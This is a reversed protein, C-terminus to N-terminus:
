DLPHDLSLCHKPCVDVCLGCELCRRDNVEWRKENRVVTIANQPCKRACLGCFICREDKGLRVAPRDKKELRFPLDFIDEGIAESIANIIAPACPVVACEAISKAGYPGTPEGEEIFDTQLRPMDFSHPMRYSHFSSNKLRGRHDYEIAEQLAYGMGMQIAGELQGEIAMRNIVRGVDHVAVYDLVDVKGTDMHVCVRAAHAGYSGPVHHSAYTAVGIVEQKAVSQVYNMVETLTASKGSPSKICFDEPYLDEANEDLMAAAYKCLQQAANEAAMKAAYCSVYVGRSSFDGLNWGCTDTDACVCDIKEMPIGLVESIVQMESTVTSTGMDHTSTHLICSGDDNMKVIMCSQDVQAGFAASGHVGLAWGVGIRCNPDTQAPLDPWNKTLALMRNVCDIPRPNGIPHMDTQDVGDPEVLNKLQLQTYDLGTAKAIRHLHCQMPFYVQPSGYGRMAGAVPTNTYVPTGIFRLNPTKYAKFVKASMAGIVNMASSAYAGTNTIVRIHQAIITGDKKLGTKIYTVSAHRTRTAIMCERRNLTLKVPRRCLMTLAVCVLDISSEMKGGFAGGIAPSVVRIKNLPLGFIRSIVIREGFTNQYPATVTLKGRADMSAIATHPEMACHHIAPTSYRDEYVYDAEAFGKEVDGAKKEVRCAINSQGHIPFADEKMAKEPDIEYPLEEYEVRILEIAQRAIEATDAAVAAVRDGVFRVTDDFIRETEIPTPTPTFYRTTSTYRIQPTNKYCAVARVGPLAEAASTDISKIRAHPVSSLLLKAHLLGPYSIDDVYQMQGTVKLAADYIPIGKGIMKEKM